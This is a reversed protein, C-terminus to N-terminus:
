GSQLTHKKEQLEKIIEYQAKTGATENGHVAGLILINKGETEHKFVISKFM